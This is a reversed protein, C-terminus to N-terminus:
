FGESIKDYSADKKNLDEGAKEFASCVVALFELAQMTKQNLDVVKANAETNKKYTQSLSGKENHQIKQLSCLDADTINLFKEKTGEWTQCKHKKGNSSAAGTESTPGPTDRHCWERSGETRDGGAHSSKWDMQYWSPSSRSWTDQCRPPMGFPLGPRIHNSVGDLASSGGTCLMEGCLRGVSM